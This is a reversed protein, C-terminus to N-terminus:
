RMKKPPKPPAEPQWTKTRRQGLEDIWLLTLPAEAARARM